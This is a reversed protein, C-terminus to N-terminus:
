AASRPSPPAAPRSPPQAAPRRQASQKQIKRNEAKSLKIEPEHEVVKPQPTTSKMRESRPLEEPQEYRSALVSRMLHYRHGFHGFLDVLRDIAGEAKTELKSRRKDTLSGEQEKMALERKATLREYNAMELEYKLKSAAENLEDSTANVYEALEERQAPTCTEMHAAACATSLNKAFEHLPKSSRYYFFDPETLPPTFYLLTPYSVVKYRDCLLKSWSGEKHRVSLTESQTKDCHVKGVLLRQSDEHEEGMEEWDSEMLLCDRCNDTHFAIFAYSRNSRFVAEDFTQYTLDMDSVACASHLLSSLGVLVLAGGCAPRM